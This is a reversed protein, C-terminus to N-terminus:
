RVPNTNARSFCSVFADSSQPHGGSEAARLAQRAVYGRRVLHGEWGMGVVGCLVSAVLTGLEWELPRRQPDHIFWWMFYGNAFRFWCNLNLLLVILAVVCWHIEPLLRRRLLTRFDTLLFWLALLRGPQVLLAQLIFLGCMVQSAAEDIILWDESPDQKHFSFWFLAVTTVGVCAGDLVVLLGWTVLLFFMPPSARYRQVVADLAARVRDRFKM